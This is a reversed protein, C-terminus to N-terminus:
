RTAGTAASAPEPAIVIQVRREGAAAPGMGRALIREGDVGAVVGDM